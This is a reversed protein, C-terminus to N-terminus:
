LMGGFVGVAMVLLVALAVIGLRDRHGIDDRIVDDQPHYHDNM